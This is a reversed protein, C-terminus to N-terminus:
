KLPEIEKGGYDTVTLGDCFRGTPVGLDIGYPFYNAKAISPLYNNNGNDILSDGFIFIAPSQASHSVSSFIALFMIFKIQIHDLLHHVDLHLEVGGNKAEMIEMNFTQQLTLPSHLTHAVVQLTKSKAYYVNFHLVNCTTM